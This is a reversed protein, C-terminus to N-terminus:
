QEVEIAIAEPTPGARFAREARISGDPGRVVLRYAGEPLEVPMPTPVYWAVTRVPLDHEDLVRAKWGNTPDPVRLDFAVTCCPEVELEVEVNAGPALEVFKVASVSCPGGGQGRSSNRARLAFTGAGLRSITFTGDAKSEFVRDERFDIAHAELDAPGCQLEMPTTAGSRTVIRGTIRAERGLAVREDQGRGPEVTITRYQSEYGKAGVELVQDGPAVAGFAVKGQSSTVLPSSFSGPPHLSVFAGVLPEALEADHVTIEVHGLKARLDELAVTFAVETEGPEVHKTALVLHHLLLSVEVPPECRLELSGLYEIPQAGFRRGNMYFTGVGIPNGSFGYSAKIWTGPDDKTAVPIVGWGRRPLSEQLAQWLPEGQPTVAKISLVVARSAVVFDHRQPVASAEITLVSVAPRFGEAGAWVWYRGPALGSISYGAETSSEAGRKRGWADTFDVGSDPLPKGDRDVVFGHLICGVAADDAAPSAVPAPEIMAPLRSAETSAVRTEPPPSELPQPSVAPISAQEPLVVQPRPERDPRVLLVIGCAILVAVLLLGRKM